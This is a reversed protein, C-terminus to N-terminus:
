RSVILTRTASLKKQGEATIKITVQRASFHEPLPMRGELHVYRELAIGVPTLNVHAARGNSYRGEVVLEMEGKFLKSKDKDQIILIRYALDGEANSFSAARIGPSTSRPDPPMAEAFREIDENQAILRQRISELEQTRTQLATENEKLERQQRSLETQLRQKEINASNLDFQLQESQEVTLRTPGYSKQLFLLGGAGLVVGSLMLVLWRPIRRRRRTGYTTPRFVHRNRSGFM